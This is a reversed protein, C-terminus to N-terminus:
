GGDNNSSASTLDRKKQTDTELTKARTRHVVAKKGATMSEIAAKIVQGNCHTYQNVSYVYELAKKVLEPM